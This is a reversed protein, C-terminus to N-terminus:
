SQCASVPEDIVAGVASAISHFFPKDQNTWVHLGDVWNQHSKFAAYKLSRLDAFKWGTYQALERLRDFYPDRIGQCYQEHKPNLPLLILFIESGKKEARLLSKVGPYTLLETVTDPPRTTFSYHMCDFNVDPRQNAMLDFRYNHKKFSMVDKSWKFNQRHNLWANFLGADDFNTWFRFYSLWFHAASKRSSAQTPLVRYSFRAAQHSIYQRIEAPKMWMSEDNNLTKLFKANENDRRHMAALFYEFLDIHGTKEQPTQQTPQDQTKPPREAVVRAGNIHSYMPDKEKAFLFLAGDEIVAIKKPVTKSENLRRVFLGPNRKPNISMVSTDFHCRKLVNETVCEGGFVSISEPDFSEGVEPFPDFSIEADETTSPAYLVFDLYFPGWVVLVMAVFALAYRSSFIFSHM